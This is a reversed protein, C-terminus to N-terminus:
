YLVDTMLKYIRIALNGELKVPSIEFHMINTRM